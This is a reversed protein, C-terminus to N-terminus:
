PMSLWALALESDVRGNQTVVEPQPLRQADILDNLLATRSIISEAVNSTYFGNVANEFDIAKMPHLVMLRKYYNTIGAEIRKLEALKSQRAREMQVRLYHYYREPTVGKPKNLRRGLDILRTELRAIHYEM